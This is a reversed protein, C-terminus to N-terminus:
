IDMELVPVDGSLEGLALAIIDAPHGAALADDLDDYNDLHGGGNNCHAAYVAIRGRATLAVGWYYGSDFGDEGTRTEDSDPAVLWRGTFALTREAGHADEVDVEIREMDKGAETITQMIRLEERLARQCVQSVPFDEVEGLEEALDDPLYM